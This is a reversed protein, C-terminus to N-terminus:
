AGLQGAPLRRLRRALRRQGPSVAGHGSEHVRRGGRADIGDALRLCEHARELRPSRRAAILQSAALLCEGLPLLQLGQEVASRQCLKLRLRRTSPLARGIQRRGQRRAAHRQRVQRIRLAM